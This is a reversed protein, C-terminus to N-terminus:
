CRVLQNEGPMMGGGSAAHVYRVRTPPDFPMPRADGGSNDRSTKGPVSRNAGIRVGHRCAGFRTSPARLVASPVCM